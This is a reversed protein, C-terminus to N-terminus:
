AGEAIAADTDSKAHVCFWATDTIAEIEHEVNAEIVLCLPAHLVEPIEPHGDVTRRIRVTGVALISIHGYAHIHKGVVQGAPVIMQKVALSATEIHEIVMM